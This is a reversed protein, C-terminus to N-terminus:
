EGEFLLEGHHLRQAIQYTQRQARVTPAHAALYRAAAVLVHVGAPDNKLLSYQTFATELTQITHFDRDERLLAKGLQALLREPANQGSLYQVVLQGAENVQQQKDLLSLLLNLAEDSTQNNEGAEPIRAAPINLFRYLYVSMAADFVGRLLEPSHVRRLGMQVANAFSFTHLTTDWDSFENSTHFQAMRLAAAYSVTGAIQEMSAGDKLASLLSSVIQQPNDGLLVPILEDRQNWSQSRQNELIGPLAEFAIELIDVLDIPHRWSNSEEMRSARTFNSVLSTLVQEVMTRDDWGVIDLAELAKNTFDLVHGINIYRHDTAATFLMSAVQQQNAGVDMASALCREAGEDDRVEIFQRFWNKLTAVDVRSAPLPRISFRPPQGSTDDSVASLGHYMARSRDESDLYPLMRMFCVHMTLGQSWGRQR